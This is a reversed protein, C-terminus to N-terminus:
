SNNKVREIETFLLHIDLGIFVTETGDRFLIKTSPPPYGCFTADDKVQQIHPVAAKILNENIIFENVRIM